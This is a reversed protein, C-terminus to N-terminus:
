NHDPKMFRLVPLAAVLKTEDLEDVLRRVSERVTDVLPDEHYGRFSIQMDKQPIGLDKLYLSFVEDVENKPPKLIHVIQLFRNIPLAREGSSFRSMAGSSINLQECLEKQSKVWRFVSENIKKSNDTMVCIFRM